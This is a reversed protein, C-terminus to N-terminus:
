EDSVEFMFELSKGKGVFIFDETFNKISSGNEMIDIYKCGDQNDYFFVYGLRIDYIRALYGHEKHKWVDNFDPKEKSM